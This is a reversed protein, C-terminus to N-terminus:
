KLIIRIWLCNKMTTSFPATPDIIQINKNDQVLTPVYEVTERHIQSSSGNKEKTHFTFSEIDSKTLCDSLWDILYEVM